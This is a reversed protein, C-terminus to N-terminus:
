PLSLVLLAHTVTFAIRKPGLVAMGGYVRTFGNIVASGGPRDLGANAV